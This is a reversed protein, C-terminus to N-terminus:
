FRVKGLPSFILTIATAFRHALKDTFLRPHQWTGVRVHGQQCCIHCNIPSRHALPRVALTVVIVVPSVSGM